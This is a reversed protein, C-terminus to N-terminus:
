LEQSIFFVIFIFLKWLVKQREQESAALKNAEMVQFQKELDHEKRRMLKRMQAQHDHSNVLIEKMRRKQENESEKIRVEEERGKMIQTMIQSKEHDIQQKKMDEIRRKEDMSVRMLNTALKKKNEREDKEKKVENELRKKQEEVFKKDGILSQNANTMASSRCREKQIDLEKRYLQQLERYEKHDQKKSLEEIEDQHRALAAWEDFVEIYM